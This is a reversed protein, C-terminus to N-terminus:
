QRQLRYFRAPNTSISDTLTYYSGNVLVPYLTIPTWVAGPGLTESSELEYNTAAGNTGAAYTTGYLNGGTDQILAAEPDSGDIFLATSTATM